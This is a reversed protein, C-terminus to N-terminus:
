KEDVVVNSHRSSEVSQLATDLQEHAFTDTRLDLVARRLTLGQSSNFATTCAPRSPFQKQNM